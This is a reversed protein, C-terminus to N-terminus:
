QKRKLEEIDRVLEDYNKAYYYQSIAIYVALIGLCLHSMLYILFEFQEPM